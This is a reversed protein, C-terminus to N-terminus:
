SSPRGATSVSVQEDASHYADLAEQATHTREFRYAFPAIGREILAELKERRAAELYSREETATM